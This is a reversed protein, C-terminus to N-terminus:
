PQYILVQTVKSQRQGVDRVDLYETLDVVVVDAAAFMRDFNVYVLFVHSPHNSLSSQNMTERAFCGKSILYSFCQLRLMVDSYISYSVAINLCVFFIFFMLILMSFVQQPFSQTLTRQVLCSKVRKERSSPDDDDIDRTSHNIWQNFLMLLMVGPFFHLVFTVSSRDRALTVSTVHTYWWYEEKSKQKM